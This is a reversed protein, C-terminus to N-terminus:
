DRFSVEIAHKIAGGDEGTHENLRPLLTTVLRLVLQKKYESWKEVSKNGKLVSQVDKLGQTRVDAALKRDQFSKGGQGTGSGKRAM